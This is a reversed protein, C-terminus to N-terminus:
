AVEGTAPIAELPGPSLLKETPMEPVNLIVGGPLRNQASNSVNNRVAQLNAGNCM